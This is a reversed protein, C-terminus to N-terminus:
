TRTLVLTIVARAADTSGGDTAIEVAQGATVTNAATPTSSDVDGAASSANAITIGGNTISTGGIQPDLVADGVTIAGDIVSYIKTIDGAHPCVVWASSATSIDVITTTLFTENLQTATADIATGAIKIAGGSEIDIEGGSEVDLSGGSAVVARDGDNMTYFGADYTADAM